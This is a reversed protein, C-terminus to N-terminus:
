KKAASVFKSANLKKETPQFEHPILLPYMKGSEDIHQVFINTDVLFPFRMRDYKPWGAKLFYHEKMVRDCWDLDSTGTNSVISGKEPDFFTKAPEKFVRRTLQDGVKYEPSDNWMARIISMHVLLTGTPVGSAWVKDGMKWKDYYSDGVGRYILPEPPQSKTFYLGSVVPVTKRRMYENLRWFTQPPIINDQELFFLWEADQQIANRVIINQADSVVYQLPATTPMWQMLEAMSWNTPIVQGYRALAWEIRVLGTVPTGIIIRNRWKGTNKILGPVLETYNKM